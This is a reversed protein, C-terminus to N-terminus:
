YCCYNSFGGYIIRFNVIHQQYGSFWGISNTFNFNFLPFHSNFDTSYSFYLHCFSFYNIETDIFASVGFAFLTSLGLWCSNINFASSSLYLRNICFHYYHPLSVARIVIPMFGHLVGCLESCQGYFTGVRNLILGAVNLRGPIADIKLALSPMAFSHIVDNASILLRISTSIPLVIPNDVALQRLYGVMLDVDAVLFSDYLDFYYEISWFWQSGMIRVTVTPDIMEDMLYLLRLSPLGIAWLVLAPSVTWILEVWNGNALNSLYDSGAMSGNNISISFLASIQFWVVVALIILLYFIIRDHLDVISLMWDSAIDQFGKRHMMLPYDLDLVLFPM